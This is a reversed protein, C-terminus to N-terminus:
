QNNHQKTLQNSPFLLSPPSVVASHGCRMASRSIICIEDSRTSCPEREIRDVTYKVTTHLKALFKPGSRMWWACATSRRHGARVAGPSVPGTDSSAPEAM